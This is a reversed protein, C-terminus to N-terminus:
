AQFGRAFGMIGQFRRGLKIAQKETVGLDDTFEQIDDDSADSNEAAWAYFRDFAGVRTGGAGKPKSPLEIGNQKAYKRISALAQSKTTAEVEESVTVAFTDVDAWDNPAFNQSVLLEEVAAFRNKSSMRLGRAELVQNMLRGARAFKFGAQVLAIGLEDEDTGAEILPNLIVIAKELDTPEVVENTNEDSM